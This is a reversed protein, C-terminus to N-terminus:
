RTTQKEEPRKLTVIIEKRLFLADESPRTLKGESVEHLKRTKERDEESELTDMLESKEMGGLLRMSIEITTETGINNEQIIKKENMVKGHHVLYTMVPPILSRRKTAAKQKKDYKISVLKGNITKVYITMYDEELANDLETTPKESIENTFM